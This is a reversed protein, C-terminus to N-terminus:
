FLALQPEQNPLHEDSSWDHKNEWCPRKFPCSLCVEPYSAVPFLWPKLPGDGANDLAMEMEAVSQAIYSEVDLMDEVSLEYPRLSGTLLQAELLRVRTADIDGLHVFDKHAKCQLLSTAYLALQLRYDRNAFFHVKWDVILPTNHDYFAIVDPRAKVNANGFRFSLSRQPIVRSASRLDAILEEMTFLNTLAQEVEEWAKDIDAEPISIGHEIAHFAAFSEGVATVVIGPERLRHSMAFELQNQFIRQAYGVAEDIQCSRQQDWAPIILKSIVTDVIQGRWASVSQLKSLLYLERREDKSNANARLGYYWRRQCKRFTRSDSFSWRM